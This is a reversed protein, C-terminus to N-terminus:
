AAGGATDYKAAVWADAESRRLDFIGALDPCERMVKRAYFARYHDNLRFGAGETTTQLRLEWRAVNYILDIGVKELGEGRAKRALRVMTTFVAPNDRDFEEFREAIPLRRSENTVQIFPVQTTRDSADPTSM